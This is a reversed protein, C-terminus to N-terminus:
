STKKKLRSRVLKMLLARYKWGVALVAAACLGIIGYRLLLNEYLFGCLLM